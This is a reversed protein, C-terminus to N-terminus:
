AAGRWNKLGLPSCQRNAGRAGVAVISMAFSDLKDSPSKPLCLSVGGIRTLFIAGDFNGL